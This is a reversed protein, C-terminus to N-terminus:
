QWIEIDALALTSGAEQIEIVRIPIWGPGTVVEAVFDGDGDGVGRVFLTGGVLSNVKIKAGKTGQYDPIVLSGSSYVKDAAKMHRVPEEIQREGLANTNYNKM